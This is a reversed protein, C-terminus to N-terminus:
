GSLTIPKSKYVAYVSFLLLCTGIVRSTRRVAAAVREDNRTSGLMCPQKQRRALHATHRRDKLQTSKLARPPM